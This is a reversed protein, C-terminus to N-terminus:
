AKKKIEEEPYCIEMWEMPAGNEDEPAECVCNELNDISCANEEDASSLKFEFEAVQVSVNSANSGSDKTGKPEILNNTDPRTATATTNTEATSTGSGTGSGSTSSGNTGSGSTGSGSTGSGGTGSGGSGSGSSGSESADPDTGEAVINARTLYTPNVLTYNSADTGLLTIGTVNVDKNNGVEPSVFASTQEFTVVDKILIDTTLPAVKATTEGDYVKNEAKYTVNLTKPEVTMLASAKSLDFNSVEAGQLNVKYGNSNAKLYGSSSGSYGQISAGQTEAFFNASQYIFDGAGTNQKMNRTNKEKIEKYVDFSPGVDGYTNPLGNLTPALAIKERFMVKAKAGDTISTSAEYATYTQANVANGGMEWLYLNNMSADLQGLKGTDTTNGTFLRIQGTTSILPDSPSPNGAVKIQGGTGDGADRKFGAALIVNGSGTNVGTLNGAQGVTLDGVAQVTTSANTTKAALIVDSQEEIYQSGASDLKLTNAETHILSGAAGITSAAKLSVDSGVIETVPSDAAPATRTISGTTATVNVAAKQDGSGAAISAQQIINPATLEIKGYKDSANTSWIGHRTLKSDAIYQIGTTKGFTLDRVDENTISGIVLDNVANVKFSNTATRGGEIAPNDQLSGALVKVNTKVDIGGGAILMVRDGLITNYTNGGKNTSLMGGAILTTLTNLDGLKVDENFVLDRAAGITVNGTSTLIGGPVVEVDRFGLVVLDGTGSNLSFAGVKAEKNASFDRPALNKFITIDAADGKVIGSGDLAYKPGSFIRLDGGNSSLSSNGWSKDWGNGSTSSLKTANNNDTAALKNFMHPVSLLSKENLTYFQGSMNLNDTGSGDVNSEPNGFYNAFQSVDVPKDGKVTLPSINYTSTITTLTESTTKGLSTYSAITAASSPSYARVVYLQEGGKRADDGGVQKLASAIGLDPKYYVYDDALLLDGESYTTGDVRYYKNTEGQQVVYGGTNVQAKLRIPEGTSTVTDLANPLTVGRSVLVIDGNILERGDTIPEGDITFYGTPPVKFKETEVKALKTFVPVIINARSTDVRVAGLGDGGLEGYVNQNFKEFTKNLNADSKDFTTGSTDIQRGISADSRLTVSSASNTRSLDSDLILEGRANIEISGADNVDGTGTIRINNAANIVLMGGKTEFRLSNTNTNLAADTGVKITMSPATAVRNGMRIGGAAADLNISIQANLDNNITIWGTSNEKQKVSIISPFKDPLKSGTSIIERPLNSNWSSPELQLNTEEFGEIRLRSFEGKGGASYNNVKYGLLADFTGGGSIINIQSNHGRGDTNLTVDGPATPMSNTRLTIKRETPHTFTVQGMGDNFAGAHLSLYYPTVNGGGGGTNIDNFIKINNAMIDVAEAKIVHKPLTVTNFGQFNYLYPTRNGVFDSIEDLAGVNYPRIASLDLDPRSEDSKKGTTLNVKNAQLTFSEKLQITGNETAHAAFSGLGSAPPSVPKFALVPQGTQESDIKFRGADLRVSNANISDLDGGWIDQAIVRYNAAGVLSNITTPLNVTRFGAIDIEAVGNDAAILKSSLDLNNRQSVDNPNVGSYIIFERGKLTASEAISVLGKLNRWGTHHDPAGNYGASDAISGKEMNNPDFNAAILSITGTMDIKQNVNINNAVVNLLSGHLAAGGKEAEGINVTEFGLLTTSEVRNALTSQTLHYNARKGEGDLGSRLTLNGAYNISHTISESGSASVQNIQGIENTWGLPTLHIPHIKYNGSNNDFAAAELRINRATLNGALKVHNAIVEINTQTNTAFTIAPTQVTDFGRLLFHSVDRTGGSQQIQGDKISSRSITAGNADWGKGSHMKLFAGYTVSAAEDLNIRGTGTQWELKGTQKKLESSAVTPMIGISSTLTVDNGVIDANLNIDRGALTNMEASTTVNSTISIDRRAIFNGTGLLKIPAAITLDSDAYLTLSATNGAGTQTIAESVRIKGSDSLTSNTGLLGPAVTSITSPESLNTPTTQINVSTGGSLASSITSASIKTTHGATLTANDTIEIDYPDILWQDAKVQIGDINMQHASTEVFGGISEIKAQSVDTHQALQNTKDDRGIFVDGGAVTKGQSDTGTSNAKIKGTVKIIGRDALVDVRGGTAGTTDILGAQKVQANAVGSAVDVVAAARMMVQGGKTVVVGQEHNTVSANIDAADLELSVKGSLPVKITANQGSALVAAGGQTEIRGRNDVQAGILAVYGGGETIKITGENVVTGTSGNREFRNNGNLFNEDTINYTSATFSGANINGTSGIAIGNPNVLVMGSTNLTGNIQTSGSGTVRSLMVGGSHNVQANSGINFSEYNVVAKATTQQITMTNGSVSQTVNGHRVNAGTPLAGPNLAWAASAGLNLMMALMTMRMAGSRSMASGGSSNGKSISRANEAVVVLTGTRKSFIVKHLHRNM